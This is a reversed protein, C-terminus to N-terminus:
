YFIESPTVLKQLTQEELSEESILLQKGSFDQGVMKEYEEDNVLRDADEFKKGTDEEKMEVADKKWHVWQLSTQICLSVM